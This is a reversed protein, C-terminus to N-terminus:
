YNNLEAFKEYEEKTIEKWNELLHGDNIGKMTKKLTAIVDFPHLPSVQEVKVRRESLNRFSILLWYYKM